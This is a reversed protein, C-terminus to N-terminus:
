ELIWQNIMMNGGRHVGTEYVTYIYINIHICIVTYYIYICGFILDLQTDTYGMLIGMFFNTSYMGRFYGWFGKPSDM